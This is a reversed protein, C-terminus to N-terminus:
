GAPWVQPGLTAEAKTQNNQLPCVKGSESLSLESVMAERLGVLM